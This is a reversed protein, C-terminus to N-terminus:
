SVPMSGPTSKVRLRLLHINVLQQMLDVVSQIMGFLPTFIAVPNKVTGLTQGRMFGRGYVLDHIPAHLVLRLLRTFIAFLITKHARFSGVVGLQHV